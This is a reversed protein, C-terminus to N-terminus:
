VYGFGAKELPSLKKKKEGRIMGKAKSLPTLFLEGKMKLLLEEKKNIMNELTAPEIGIKKIASFVDIRLYGKNQTKALENIKNEIEIKLTRLNILESYTICYNNLLEEDSPTILDTGSFYELIEKWRALAVPNKSVMPSIKIEQGNLKIERERREAIQKKTRHNPNGSAVQYDIPIPKRGPM